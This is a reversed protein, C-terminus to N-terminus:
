VKHTPQTPQPPPTVAACLADLLTIAFHQASRDIGAEEWVSGPLEIEILHIGHALGAIAARLRSALTHEGYTVRPLLSRKEDPLVIHVRLMNADPPVSLSDASVVKSAPTTALALNHMRQAVLRTFEQTGFLCIPKKELADAARAFGVPMDLQVVEKDEWSYKLRQLAAYTYAGAIGDTPLGMNMQFKRLAMETTAGFIGDIHACNFGLAGLARQLVFVDHGHFHPMKLFLTRDGLAFTADILANWIKTSVNGAREEQTDCEVNARKCFAKVGLATTEGFEGDVQSKELCGVLCLRQQVDETASGSDGIHVVISM